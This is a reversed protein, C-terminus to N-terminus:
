ACRSTRRVRTTPGCGSTPSTSSFARGSAAAAAALAHTGDRTRDAARPRGAARQHARVTGAGIVGDAELGHRVQFRKVAEVIGGTYHTHTEHVDAVLDGFPGCGPSWSRRAPGPRGPCSRRRAPPSRRCRRRSARRPLRATHPSPPGRGSTTRSRRSSAACCTESAAAPARTRCCAGGPRGVQATRRVELAAPGSRRTRHLGRPRAAGAAVSLALDFQARESSRRGAPRSAPGSCRCRRRRRLRGPRPRVRAAPQRDLVAGEVSPLPQM